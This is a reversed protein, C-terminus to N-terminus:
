RLQGKEKADGWLLSSQAGEDCLLAAKLEAVKRATKPDCHVACFWRGLKDHLLSVGYGFSAYAGCTECRYEPPQYSSPPLTAATAKRQERRCEDDVRQLLMAVRDVEADTRAIGALGKAQWGRLEARVEEMSLQAVGLLSATM